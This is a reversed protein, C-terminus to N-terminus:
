KKYKKILEKATLKVAANVAKPVNAKFTQKAMNILGNKVLDKIIDINFDPSEPMIVDLNIDKGREKMQKEFQEFLGFDYFFSLASEKSDTLSNAIGEIATAGIKGGERAVKKINNVFGDWVKYGQFNKLRVNKDLDKITWIDDDIGNLKFYVDGEEAISMNVNDDGMYTLDYKRMDGKHSSNSVARSLQNNEYPNVKNVEMWTGTKTHFMSLNDLLNKANEMWTNKIDLHGGKIANLQNEKVGSLYNRVVERHKPNQLTNIVPDGEEWKSNEIHGVKMEELDEVSLDNFTDWITIEPIEGEMAPDERKQKTPSANNQNPLYNERTKSKATSYNEFSTKSDLPSNEGKKDYLDRWFIWDPNLKDEGSQIDLIYKKPEKSDHNPEEFQDKKVENNEKEEKDKEEKVMRGHMIEKAANDLTKGFEGQYTSGAGGSYKFTEASERVLRENVKLPTKNKAM